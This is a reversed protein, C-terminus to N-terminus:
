AEALLEALLPPDINGGTLIVVARGGAVDVVGDLIAAVGAAGSGEVVLHERRLVDVVARRLTAERVLIVDDIFTRGLAFSREGVGGELGEAITPKSEVTLHARGDRRSLWMGPSADTNVGVIRTHPSRARAAVGMGVSLGGGGCPAIVLDPDPLEDQVELFTTGGNGAMIAPDEFASVFTGGLEDARDLTWSLTADYGDHPSRLVRAGLAAIGDTKVRPASRPVVVTCPTAFISAARALGLGHNGASAAVVGRARAEPAMESLAAVAGRIKFSGTAQLNECKLYVDGGARASLRESRLLPTRRTHRSVAERVREILDISIEAGTM